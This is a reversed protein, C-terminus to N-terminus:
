KAGEAKAIVALAKKLPDQLESASRGAYYFCGEDWSGHGEIRAVLKTLAELLDPAAAILQAKEKDHLRVINEGSKHRVTQFIIALGAGNEMREEYHEWPGQASM